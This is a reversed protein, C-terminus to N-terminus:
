EPTPRSGTADTKMPATVDSQEGVRRANRGDASPRTVKRQTGLSFYGLSLAGRIRHEVPQARRPTLQPRAKRCPKRGQRFPIPMWASEGAPRTTGLESVAYPSGPARPARVKQFLPSRHAFLLSCLVFFLSCLVFFLSCLVFFLSCLAFLLSCLAFLLSCLAFLLSCLAFLLSGFCLRM